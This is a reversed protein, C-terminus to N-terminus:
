TVHRIKSGSGPGNCEFVLQNDSTRSAFFRTHPDKNTKSAWIYYVDHFLISSLYLGNDGKLSIGEPAEIFAELNEPIQASAGAFLTLSLAILPLSRM